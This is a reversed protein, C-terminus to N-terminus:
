RAVFVLIINDCVSSSPKAIPNMAILEACNPSTSKCIPDVTTTPEAKRPTIFDINLIMCETTILSSKYLQICHLHVRHRSM